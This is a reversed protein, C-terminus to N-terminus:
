RLSRNRNYNLWGRCRHNRNGSRPRHNRSLLLLRDSLRLRNPVYSEFRNRFRLGRLGLLLGDLLRDLLFFRRGYRRDIEAALPSAAEVPVARSHRKGHVEFLASALNVSHPGFGVAVASPSLRRDAPRSLARRRREYR